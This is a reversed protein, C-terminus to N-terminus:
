ESCLPIKPNPYFVVGHSQLNKATVKVATKDNSINNKKKLCFVAYSIVLHSSNLRTSKRDPFSHAVVQQTIFLIKAPFCCSATTSRFLTTYPFLTSRPPRRIMLFFFFFFYFVASLINFLVLLCSCDLRCSALLWNLVVYVYLS